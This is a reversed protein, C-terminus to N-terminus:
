FSTPYPPAPTLHLLLSMVKWLRSYKTIWGLFPVEVEQQLIAVVEAWFSTISYTLTATYEAFYSGGLLQQLSFGLHFTALLLHLSIRRLWILHSSPSARCGECLGVSGPTLHTFARGGWLSSLPFPAPATEEPGPLPSDSVLGGQCHDTPIRPFTRHEPSDQTEDSRM